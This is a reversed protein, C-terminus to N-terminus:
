QRLPVHFTEGVSVALLKPPGDGIAARVRRAPEDMPEQSLRFTEHHVPVFNLAGAERAMAIAQEPSCHAHIWPDYAGIPMLMLDLPQRPDNLKAFAHTHATDGAFCIRHGDREFLYGNYGRHQDKLMRAGWHAVLLATIRLPGARTALTLTQDWDLEHVNRFGHRRLLDATARATIVPTDRRFKRLSWVDFHDFHAHSIVIVDPSLVSYRAFSDKEAELSLLLRGDEVAAITGDHGPKMAVILM